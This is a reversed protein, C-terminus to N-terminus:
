RPHDVRRAKLERPERGDEGRGGVVRYDYDVNVVRAVHDAVGVGIRERARTVQHGPRASEGPNIAALVAVLNLVRQIVRAARVGRSDANVSLDYTRAEDVKAIRGPRKIEVTHGIKESVYRRAVPM